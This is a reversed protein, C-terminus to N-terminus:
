KRTNNIRPDFGPGPRCHLTEERLSGQPLFLREAGSRVRLNECYSGDRIKTANFLIM